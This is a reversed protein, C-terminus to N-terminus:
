PAGGGPGEEGSGDADAGEEGAGDPDHHILSAGSQIDQAREFAAAAAETNGLGEEALYLGFWGAAVDPAMDTVALFHRRAEAFADARIAANGSDLQATMAPDWNAREQAAAAPDVSDTRQDDPRCGTVSLAVLALVVMARRSM